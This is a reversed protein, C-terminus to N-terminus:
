LDGLDIAAEDALSTPVGYYVAIDSITFKANGTLNSYKYVVQSGGIATFTRTIHEVTKVYVGDIYVDVSDDTNWQTGLTFTQGLTRGLMVATGSPSNNAGTGDALYLVLGSATNHISALMVANYAGSRQTMYFCLGNTALASNATGLTPTSVPLADIKFTQELLLDETHLIYEPRHYTQLVGDASSVATDYTYASGNATFNTPAQVNSGAVTLVTRGKGPAFQLKVSKGGLSVTSVQNLDALKVGLSSLTYTSYASGNGAAYYLNSADWYYGEKNLPISGPAATYTAVDTVQPDAPVALAVPSGPIMQAVMFLALILACLRKFNMM